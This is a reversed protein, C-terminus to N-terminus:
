FSLSFIDHLACFMVELGDGWATSHRNQQRIPGPGLGSGVVHKDCVRHCVPCSFVRSFGVFCSQMETATDRKNCIRSLFPITRVFRLPCSTLPFRHSFPTVKWGRRGCRLAGVLWKYSDKTVVKLSLDLPCSSRHKLCRLLLVAWSGGCRISPSRYTICKERKYGEM